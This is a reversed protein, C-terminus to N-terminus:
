SSLAAIFLGIWILFTIQGFCGAKGSIFDLPWFPGGLIALIGYIIIVAIHMAELGGIDGAGLVVKSKLCSAHFQLAVDLNSTTPFVKLM